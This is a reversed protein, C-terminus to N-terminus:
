RQQRNNRSLRGRPAAVDSMSPLRQPPLRGARTAAASRQGVSLKESMDSYDAGTHPKPRLEDSMDSYDAGTHPKPRSEDSM